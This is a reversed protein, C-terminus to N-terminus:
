CNSNNNSNDIRFINNINNNKLLFKNTLIKIKTSKKKVINNSQYQNININNIYEKEFILNSNENLFNPISYKSIDILKNFNSIDIEHREKKSPTIVVNNNIIQYYEIYPNFLTLNDVKLGNFQEIESILNNKVIINKRDNLKNIKKSDNNNNQNRRLFFDYPLKQTLHRQYKRKFKNLTKIFDYDIKENEIKNNQNSKIKNILNIHSSRRHRKKIDKNEKKINSDFLLDKEFTNDFSFFREFNQSYKRKKNEIGSLQRKFIRKNIFINNDKKINDETTTVKKKHKFIKKFEKEQFLFFYKYDISITLTENNSNIIKLFFYRLDEYKSIISLIKSQYFNFFFKFNKNFYIIDLQFSHIISIKNILENNTEFYMFYKKLNEDDIYDVIKLPLIRHKIHLNKTSNFNPFVKKFNDKKSLNNEFFERFLKFSILYKCVYFGWNSFNNKLLYCMLDSNIQLEIIEKSNLFEVQILPLILKVKFIHKPTNWLFIYNDGKLNIEKEYNINNMEFLNLHLISKIDNIKNKSKFLNCHKIFVLMKNEDYSINEFDNSFKILTLLVYKFYQFDNYYFIPLYCFPFHLKKTKKTKINEFIIQISKLKLIFNNEKEKYEKILFYVLDKNNKEKIMNINNSIFEQYYEKLSSNFKSFINKEDYKLNLTDIDNKLISESIITSNDMIYKKKSFIFFGNSYNKLKDSVYNKLLLSSFKEKQFSYSKILDNESKNSNIGLTIDTNDSQSNSVTHKLKLKVLCSDSFVYPLVKINRRKLHLFDEKKKLNQIKLKKVKHFLENYSERNLLLGKIDKKFECSPNKQRKLLLGIHLKNYNYDKKKLSLNFEMLLFYFLKFFEFSFFYFFFDLIFFYFFIYNYM